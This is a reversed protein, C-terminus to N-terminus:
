KTFQTLVMTNKKFYNFCDIRKYSDIYKHCEFYEYTNNIVNQDLKNMLILNNSYIKHYNMFKTNKILIQSYDSFLLNYNFNVRQPKNNRLFCFDNKYGETFESQTFNFFYDLQRISGDHFILNLTNIQSPHNLVRNIFIHTNIFKPNTTLNTLNFNNSLLDYCGFTRNINYVSVLEPLNM